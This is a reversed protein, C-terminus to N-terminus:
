VEELEQNSIVMFGGKGEGKSLVGKHLHTCDLDICAQAIADDISDFNGVQVNAALQTVEHRIIGGNPCIMVASYDM